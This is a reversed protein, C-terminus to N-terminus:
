VGNKMLCDGWCIVRLLLQVGFINARWLIEMSLTLLWMPMVPFMVVHVNAFSPACLSLVM